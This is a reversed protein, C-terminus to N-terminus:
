TSSSRRLREALVRMMELAFFPHQQVLFLFRREGISVARCDTRAIATASRTGKAILAMEGFVEGAGHSNILRGDIQIDVQGELIYFFCAAPEGKEFLKQGAAFSQIDKENKLVSLVSNMASATENQM